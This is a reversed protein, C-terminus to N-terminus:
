LVGALPDARFAAVPRIYRLVTAMSRHGTRQMISIESAGAEAATTVFGARLSHAGYRTQDEGIRKLARKLAQNITEGQIRELTPTGPPRCQTFLPGPHNGREKLWSQLARVPCLEPKSGRPIAVIRGQARQDTKSARLQVAAGKSTIEIDALDLGVLESRRWGGAFGFVIVARDRAAIPSKEAILAASMRQLQEITIAAKQRPKERLRRKANAFLQRVAEDIPVPHRAHLHADRIASLGLEVTALRAGGKLQDAVFLATTDTTAPMHERGAQTCWRQFRTIAQGYARKTNAAKKHRM